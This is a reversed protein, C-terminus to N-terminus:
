AMITCKLILTSHFGLQVLFVWVLGCQKGRHFFYLALICLQLDPPGILPFHLISSPFSPSHDSRFNLDGLHYGRGTDNLTRTPQTRNFFCKFQVLACPVYPIELSLLTTHRQSPLYGVMGLLHIIPYDMPWGHHTRQPM